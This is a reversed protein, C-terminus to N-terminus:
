KEVLELVKDLYDKVNEEVARTRLYTIDLNEKQAAYVLVAREFDSASSWFKAAALAYIIAEEPPVMYVRYNNIRIKLPPKRKDYITGVIDLAKDVLSSLTSIYFRGSEVYGISKLLKRLLNATEPKGEVIIDVDLTRYGGGSYFEAAFGRSVIVKGLAHEELFNNIFAVLMLFRTTIDRICSLKGIFSTFQDKFGSVIDESNDRRQQM